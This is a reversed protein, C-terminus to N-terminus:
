QGRHVQRGRRRSQGGEPRSSTRPRGTARPLSEPRQTARLSSRPRRIARPFLRPRSVVIAGVVAEKFKDVNLPKWPNSRLSMLSRGLSPRM